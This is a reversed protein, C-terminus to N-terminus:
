GIVEFYRLILLISLLLFLGSFGVFYKRLSFKQVPRHLFTILLALAFCMYASLFGGVLLMNFDMVLLIFVIIGGLIAIYSLSTAMYYLVIRKEEEEYEEFEPLSIM